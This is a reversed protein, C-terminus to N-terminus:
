LAENDICYTDDTNELLQHISLTANYPEVVSESVKLSPVVSFTNMIRNHYDERVKSILLTGM